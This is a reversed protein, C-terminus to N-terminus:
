LPAVEEGSAHNTISEGEEPIGPIVVAYDAASLQALFAGGELGRFIGLFEGRHQSIKTEADFTIIQDEWGEPSALHILGDAMSVAEARAYPVSFVKPRRTACDFLVVPNEVDKGHISLREPIFLLQSRSLATMCRVNDISVGVKAAEQNFGMVLRGQSDFFAIGTRQLPQITHGHAKASIPHYAVAILGWLGAIEVAASGIEFHSDTGGKSNMVWANKSRGADYSTDALLIRGDPLYRIFPFEPASWTEPLVLRDHGWLVVQRASSGQITLPTGNPTFDLDCVSGIEIPFPFDFIKVPDTTWCPAQQTL